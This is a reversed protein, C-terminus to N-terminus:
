YISINYLRSIEENWLAKKEKQKWYWRMTIEINKKKGEDTNRYRKQAQKMHQKGEETHFYNLIHDKNKDYSTNM